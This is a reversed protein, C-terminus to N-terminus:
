RVFEAPVYDSGPQEFLLAKFKALLEPSVHSGIRVVLANDPYWAINPEDTEQLKFGFDAFLRNLMGRYERVSMGTTELDWCWRYGTAIVIDSDFKEPPFTAALLARSIGVGRWNRSVEIGGLEYLGPIEDRGWREDKEPLTITVYGIIVGQDSHAITVQGGRTSAIRLLAQRQLEPRNHWFFGLGEDIQLKEIVQGPCSPTVTITGRRTKLQNM